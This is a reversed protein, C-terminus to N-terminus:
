RSRPHIVGYIERAHRSYQGQTPKHDEFRMEGSVINFSRWLELGGRARVAQASLPELCTDQLIMFLEAKYGAELQVCFRRSWFRMECRAKQSLFSLCVM